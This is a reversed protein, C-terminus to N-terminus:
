ETRMLRCEGLSKTVPPTDLQAPSPQDNVLSRLGTIALTMGSAEALPKQLPGAREGVLGRRSGAPHRMANMM